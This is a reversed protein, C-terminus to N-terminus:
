IGCPRGGQGEIDEHEGDQEGVSSGAEELDLRKKRMELSPLWFRKTEWAL